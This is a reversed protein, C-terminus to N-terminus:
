GFPFFLPVAPLGLPLLFRPSLNPFRDVPIAATLVKEAPRTRRSRLRRKCAFFIGLTQAAGEPAIMENM